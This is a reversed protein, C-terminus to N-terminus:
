WWGCYSYCYPDECGELDEYMKVIQEWFVDNGGPDGKKSNMCVEFTCRDCVGDCKM